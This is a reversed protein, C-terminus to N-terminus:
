DQFIFSENTEWDNEEDEIENPRKELLYSFPDPHILHKGVYYTQGKSSLRVWDYGEEKIEYSKLGKFPGFNELMLAFKMTPKGGFRRRIMNYETKIARQLKKEAIRGM